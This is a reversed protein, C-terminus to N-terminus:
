TEENEFRDSPSEEDDTPMGREGEGKPPTGVTGKSLLSEKKEELDTGEKPTEGDEKRDNEPMRKKGKAKRKEEGDPTSFIQPELPSSGVDLPLRTRARKIQRLLQQPDLDPRLQGPRPIGRLEQIVQCLSCFSRVLAALAGHELKPDRIHEMIVQETEAADRLLPIRYVKRFQPHGIAFTTKPQPPPNIATTDAM